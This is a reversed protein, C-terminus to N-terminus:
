SLFVCRIKTRIFLTRRFRKHTEINATNKTCVNHKSGRLHVFVNHQHMRNCAPTTDCVGYYLRCQFHIRSSFDRAADPVRVRALIIVPKENRREVVSSDREKSDDQLMLRSATISNTDCAHLSHSYVDKPNLASRGVKSKRRRRKVRRRKRRRREVQTSGPRIHNLSLVNFDM